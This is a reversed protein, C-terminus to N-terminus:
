QLLWGFLDGVTLRLESAFDPLPLLAELEDLMVPQQNRIYVFVTQEEPDILWGMQTEYNLCHLINKTVKTQRQDPSLIEITWDPAAQFVNAVEGNEDCPIRQWTFVSVDPVISRGGFTCRLEPFARAIRKPKVISSITSIMEGRITSHKGQPMPKQIIEGDIYENAPKTEPLMLFEALTINKSPTRVM